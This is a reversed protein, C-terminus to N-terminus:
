GKIEAEKFEEIKSLPWWQIFGHYGEGDYNWCSSSIKEDGEYIMEKVVLCLVREGIKPIETSLKLYDKPMRRNVIM